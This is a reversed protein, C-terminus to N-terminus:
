TLTLHRKRRKEKVDSIRLILSDFVEKIEGDFNSDSLRTKMILQTAEQSDDAIVLPIPFAEYHICKDYLKDQVTAFVRNHGFKDDKQKYSSGCCTIFVVKKLNESYKELFSKLPYILKGMWIPGCLIVLDYDSPNSKLPKIGMLNIIKLNVRPKIEEIDCNLEKAIKSAIYKNNGTKSYYYVIKEM